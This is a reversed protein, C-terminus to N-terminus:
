TSSSRQAVVFDICRGQNPFPHGEADALDRWGNLKCQGKTTPVPPGFSIPTSGTTLLARTATFAVILCDAPESGCVLTEPGPVGLFVAVTSQTTFVTFDVPVGNGLWVPEPGGLGCRVFDGIFDSFDLDAPCQLIAAALTPEPFGDAVVTVHQGDVLGTSPTVTVSPVEQSHAAGPVLVTAGLLAAAAVLFTVLRRHM